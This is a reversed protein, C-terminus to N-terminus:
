YANYHLRFSMAPAKPHNTKVEITGADKDTVLGRQGGPPFTFTLLYRQSKGKFKTDRELSVKLFDPNAKMDSFQLGEEPGGLVYMNLTVSKGEQAGFTGMSVAMQEDNWVGGSGYITIPGRRNGSLLVQTEVPPGGLTGDPLRSPVNTKISLPLNFAGVPMGPKVLAKIAYGSKTAGRMQEATLPTFTASVHPDTSSLTIEFEKETPSTITGTFEAEKEEPVDGIPWSGHPTVTFREEVKANIILEIQKHAPDNTLITASQRVPSGSPQPKLTLEVTGSRGPPIPEKATESLTCKCTTGGRALVLPAEGENKIVFTQKAEQGSELVGLDYETKEVVAKPHPGTKSIEPTPDTGPPPAVKTEGEAKKEGAASVTTAGPARNSKLVSIAFYMSAIGVVLAALVAGV